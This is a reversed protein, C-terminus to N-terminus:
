RPLSACCWARVEACPEASPRLPLLQGAADSCLGAVLVMPLNGVNGAGGGWSTLLHLTQQKICAPRRM